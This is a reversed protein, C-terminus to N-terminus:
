FSFDLRVGYLAPQGLQAYSKGLANFYFAQYDENLINKGWLSIALNDKEFTIKSNLLGYYDQYSINEEQWYHKGVGRYDIQFMVKDLMDYDFEHNYVFGAHFTYEPIYPIRNGGFDDEGDVYDVFKADTYGFSLFGETHVTPVGRFELEVGKSESRGANDLMSGPQVNGEGDIVPQYIQQKKWDIYFVTLNTQLRNKFYRSKVGWEYNWSEEPEFTRDQERAFSSNFGGTKYGKAITVYTNVKETLRYKLSVKPLVEWFDLDSNFSEDTIQNGNLFKDHQYDLSASEYDFRIGASISLGKALFDKVTSQHFFAFGSTNQDYYKDYNMPGPLGYAAIADEGYDVAVQRDTLQTFGFVGCLWEYKAENEPKSQFYIEQSLMNQESFQEVFFLSAPTFDQDVSQVDDLYQHSTVSKIISHGTEYEITVNNSLMQRKYMSPNNYNVNKATNTSDVYEAYPYGNQDSDEFNFSYEIKLNDKPQYLAKLRASYSRLDDAPKGTFENTFYGNRDVLAGNVVFGFKDSVPQHHGLVVKYNEYNGANFSLNTKRYDLPDKTHINILGGMTNRGYLTGQPGRLVEIREVDFFEFNFAAKEFYPVNDVYLGVSPSNIRSGIGRIYIPSTLKSGYDPMFLNPVRSSLETLSNMEQQEINRAKLVSASMPLEQLVNKEKSAKIEFSELQVPPIYNSDRSIIMQDQSIGEQIMMALLVILIFGRNIRM